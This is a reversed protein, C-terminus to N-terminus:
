QDTDIVRIKTGQSLFEKTSFVLTHDTHSYVATAERSKLEWREMGATKYVSRWDSGMANSKLLADIEADTFEAKRGKIYSESQSKANLFKVAIGLGDHIYFKTIVGTADDRKTEQAAGYRAEAQSPTDGLDAHAAAWTAILVLLAPLFRKM